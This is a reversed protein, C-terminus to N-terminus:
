MQCITTQAQTLRSLISFSMQLYKHVNYAYFRSGGGELNRQCFRGPKEFMTEGCMSGGSLEYRDCQDPKGGMGFCTTLM